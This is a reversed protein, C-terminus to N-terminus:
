HYQILFSQCCFEPFRTVELEINHLYSEGILSKAKLGFQLLTVNQLKCSFCCSLILNRLETRSNPLISCHKIVVNTIIVFSCDIIEIVHAQPCGVLVVPSSLNFTGVISFNHLDQLIMNAPVHHEGPLFHYEVNSVVPLTGNDLLYQSLTACPQSPCSVSDTSNDPLVYLIETATSICIEVLRLVIIWKM